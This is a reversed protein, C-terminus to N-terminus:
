SLLTLTQLFLMALSDKSTFRCFKLEPPRLMTSESTTYAINMPMGEPTLYTEYDQEQFPTQRYRCTFPCSCMLRM